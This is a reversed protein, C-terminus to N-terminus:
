ASWGAGRRRCGSRAAATPATAIAVAGAAVLAASGGSSGGATRSPDHPNRTAVVRGRDDNTTDFAYGLEPVTTRGIPVLGAVLANRLM